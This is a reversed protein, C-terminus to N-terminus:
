TGIASPRKPCMLCAASYRSNEHTSHVPLGNSVAWPLIGQLPSGQFNASRPCGFAPAATGWFAM